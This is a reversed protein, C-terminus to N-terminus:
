QRQPTKCKVPIDGEMMRATVMNENTIPILALLFAIQIECDSWKLAQKVKM